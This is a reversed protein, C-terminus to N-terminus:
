VATSNVSARTDDEGQVVIIIYSAGKVISVLVHSDGAFIKGSFTFTASKGAQLLFGSENENNDNHKNDGNFPIYLSGNQRVFFNIVKGEGELDNHNTEVNQAIPNNNSM